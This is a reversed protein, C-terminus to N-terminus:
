YHPLMNCVGKQSMAKLGNAPDVPVFPNDLICIQDRGQRNGM